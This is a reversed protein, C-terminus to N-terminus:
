QAAEVTGYYLRDDYMCVTRKSFLPICLHMKAGADLACITGSLCFQYIFSNSGKQLLDSVAYLYVGPHGGVM